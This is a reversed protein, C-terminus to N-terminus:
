TKKSAMMCKYQWQNGFFQPKCQCLPEKLQAVDTDMFTEGNVLTMRAQKLKLLLMGVESNEDTTVIVSFRKRELLNLLGTSFFEKSDLVPGMLILVSGPVHGIGM